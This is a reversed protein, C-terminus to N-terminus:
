IVLNLIIFGLYCFLSWSLQRDNLRTVVCTHKVMECTILTPEPNCLM